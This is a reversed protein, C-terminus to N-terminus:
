SKDNGGRKVNTEKEYYTIEVVEYTQEGAM